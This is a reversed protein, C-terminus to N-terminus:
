GNTRRLVALAAKAADRPPVFDPDMKSGSQYVAAEVSSKPCVMMDGVGDQFCARLEEGEGFWSKFALEDGVMRVM